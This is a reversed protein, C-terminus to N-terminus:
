TSNEWTRWSCTHRAQDMERSVLLPPPAAADGTHFLSFTGAGGGAAAAGGGAKGAVGPAGPQQQQQQQQAGALLPLPPRSQLSVEVVASAALPVQLLVHRRCMCNAAQVVKEPFDILKTGWCEHATNPYTMGDGRPGSRVQAVPAEATISIALSFRGGTSLVLAPSEVGVLKRRVTTHQWWWVRRVWMAYPIM